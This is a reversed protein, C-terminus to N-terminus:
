TVMLMWATDQFAISISYKSAVVSSDTGVTEKLNSLTVPINSRNLIKVTDTYSTGAATALVTDPPTALKTSVTYPV